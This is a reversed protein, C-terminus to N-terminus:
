LASNDVNEHRRSSKSVIVSVPGLSSKGSREVLGLNRNVKHSDLYQHRSRSRQHSRLRSSDMQLTREDLKTESKETQEESKCFKVQTWNVIIIIMVVTVLFAVAIMAMLLYVVIKEQRQQQDAAGFTGGIFPEIVKANGKNLLSNEVLFLDLLGSRTAISRLKMQQEDTFNLLRSDLLSNSDTLNNASQSKSDSKADQDDECPNRFAEDFTCGDLFSHNICRM